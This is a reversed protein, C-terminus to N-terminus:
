SFVAEYVRHGDRPQLQTLLIEHPGGRGCDLSYTADILYAEFPAEFFLSFPERVDIGRLPSHRTIRALTIEVPEPLTAVRVKRGLWPEFSEPTLLGM